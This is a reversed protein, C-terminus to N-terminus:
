WRAYETRRLIEDLTVVTHPLWVTKKWRCSEIFRVIVGEERAVHRPHDSRRLRADLCNV